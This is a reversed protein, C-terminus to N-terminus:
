CLDCGLTELTRRGKTPEGLAFGKSSRALASLVDEGLRAVVIEFGPLLFIGYVIRLFRRGNKKFRM